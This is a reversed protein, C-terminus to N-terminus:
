QSLADALAGVFADLDGPNRSAILNTSWSRRM